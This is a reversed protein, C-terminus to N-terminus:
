GRWYKWGGQLRLTCEANTESVNMMGVKCSTTQEVDCIVMRNREYEHRAARYREGGVQVDPSELEGCRISWMWMRMRLSLSVSEMSTASREASASLRLRGVDLMGRCVLLSRSRRPPRSACIPM